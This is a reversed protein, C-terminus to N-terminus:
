KQWSKWDYSALKGDRPGDAYMLEFADKQQGIARALLINKEAIHLKRLNDKSKITPDLILVNNCLRTYFEAAKRSPLALPTMEIPTLNQPLYNRIVAYYAAIDQPYFTFIDSGERDNEWTYRINFLKHAPAEGDYDSCLSWVAARRETSGEVPVHKLKVTYRSKRSERSPVRCVIEAGETKVRRANDYPKVEIGGALNEAYGFLRAGELIWAFPVIRKRRDNGQVPFWYYGQSFNDEEPIDALKAFDRTRIGLPIERCAYAAEQTRPQSLRLYDGHKYCKRAAEARTAFHSTFREPLLEATIILGTEAQMNTITEVLGRGTRAAKIDTLGLIDAVTREDFFSKKAM